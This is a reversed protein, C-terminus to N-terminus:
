RGLRKPPLLKQALRTPRGMIQTIHYNLVQFSSRCATSSDRRQLASVTTPTLEWKEVQVPECHRCIVGGQHSSFHSLETARGCLVCGDFRPSLGVCELLAWQYGVLVEFPESADSFAALAKILAEFLGPQADWEETMQSTTEALYEAAHVRFLKERLGPFGRVQKWETLTALGSSREPRASVVLEGVDLLDIGVAFRKKTGRKVGKAITRVKGHERTFFVVIQSTESYDLRMLVVGQDRLLGM